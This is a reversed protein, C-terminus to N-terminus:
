IYVIVGLVASIVILTIPSIGKKKCKIKIKRSGWYIVGLILAIILAKPNLSRAMSGEADSEVFLNEFLMFAGTALIIGIICSQLGGITAKVYPNELFNKLVVMVLLIILFAPFVVTATALLAGPIGEQSSGVYTALNVMIPGPTSEAVAIMYSLENDTLWGYQTVVDRILPIASYAGGFSFFGVKLFALFLQLYIM